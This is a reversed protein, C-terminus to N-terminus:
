SSLLTLQRSGQRPLSEALKGVVVVAAAHSYMVYGATTAPSEHGMLEQVLRPDQSLAYLRTGYRHRLKHLTSQIGMSHLHRNALQSIIWASNPGGGGDHRPFVYGQNPLGVARLEDVVPGGIPVIRTKNGKGRIRLVPPDAADLVDDRHLGAIEMARLGAWGALVLWPRIRPPATVIALQLDTESIPRPVGRPLRPRILKRTPVAPILGERHAWKLYETVHAISNVRSAPALRQLSQQWRDIDDEDATLLDKALVVEARVVHRRRQYVTGPSLGRMKLLDIHRDLPPATNTM